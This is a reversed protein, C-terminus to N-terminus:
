SQIRRLHRAAAGGPHRLPIRRLYQFLDRDVIEPSRRGRVTLTPVAITWVALHGGRLEDIAGVAGEVFGLGLPAVADARRGDGRGWQPRM